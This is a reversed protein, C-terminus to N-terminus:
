YAVSVHNARACRFGGLCASFRVCWYLSSRACAFEYSSCPYATRTREDARCFTSNQLYFTSPLTFAWLDGPEMYQLGYQLGDALPRSSTAWSAKDPERFPSRM